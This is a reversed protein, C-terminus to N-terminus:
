DVSSLALLPELAISQRGNRRQKGLFYNDEIALLSPPLTISGLLSADQSKVQGVRQGSSIDCSDFAEWNVKYLTVMNVLNTKKLPPRGTTNKGSADAPNAQRPYRKLLLATTTPVTGATTGEAEFKSSFCNSSFCVFVATLSQNQWIFGTSPTPTAILFAGTAKKKKIKRLRLASDRLM